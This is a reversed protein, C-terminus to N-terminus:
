RVFFAASQKGTAAAFGLSQQFRALITSHWSALPRAVCAYM